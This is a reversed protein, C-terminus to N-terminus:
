RERDYVLTMQREGRWTTSSQQIQLDGTEQSLTWAERTLWEFRRGNRTFNIKSEIYLTDGNQSKRASTIRPANRMKSYSERGDLFLTERTIRDDGWEVIQSRILDLNTSDLTVNLKYPVNGAGWDNLTSKEENFIWKGSFGTIQPPAEMVAATRESAAESVAEAQKMVPSLSPLGCAKRFPKMIRHYAADEQSLVRPDNILVQYQKKSTNRVMGAWVVWYSWNPQTDLIEPDPPNGVEGLVLPKGQSLAILSDYYAQNFDSGYVDLALIDLYDNGPYYNSFNMEPRNPRDVSWIWILNNIKHYRVLRDFIQLYLARTSTEGLRGGWWFWVGNMEHYPRWLVPVRAEQLKKLYFAITDVQACWRLNLETGPTLVDKFQENLLQGQVSALSDVPRGGPPPRFTVPEDATPPVAHWCITVLSGKKHQRIAEKVIDPRALYSDTDGDEAFGWDTSWIVPTQGIYKAAFQSNRDRTNPYNHQGTLIYRGSIDYFLQLLARAEPSADPTVPSVAEKSCHTLINLCFIVTCFLLTKRHM